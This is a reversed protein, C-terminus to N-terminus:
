RVRKSAADLQIQGLAGALWHKSGLLQKRPHYNARSKGPSPRLLSNERPYLIDPCRSIGDATSGHSQRLGNELRVRFAIGDAGRLRKADASM